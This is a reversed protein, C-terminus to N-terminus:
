PQPEQTLKSNSSDCILLFEVAKFWMNIIECNQYISLIFNTESPEDSPSMLSANRRPSELSCALKSAKELKYLGLNGPQCGEKEIKLALLVLQIRRV